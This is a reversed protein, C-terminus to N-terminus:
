TRPSAPPPASSSRADGRLGATGFQLTGAFRAALEGTDGAEILKALEERTESDPDEALWAQARTLLDDQTVTHREPHAPSHSQTPRQASGKGM